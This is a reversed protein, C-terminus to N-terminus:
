YPPTWHARCHPILTVIGTERAGPFNIENFATDPYVKHLKNDNAVYKWYKGFSYEDWGSPEIPDVVPMINIGQQALTEGELVKIEIEEISKEGIKVDGALILACEVDKKRVVSTLDFKVTYIRKYQAVARGSSAWQWVTQSTLNVNDYRWGIFEFGEKQAAPLTGITVGYTIVKPNSVGNPIIEGGDADFMIDYLVPAWTATLTVDTLEGNVKFEDVSISGGSIKKASDGNVIWGTFEHGIRVPNNISIFTDNMYYPNNSTDVGGDLDYSIVYKDDDVFVAKATVDKDKLWGMNKDIPNGNEDEWRAFKYGTKTPIAAFDAIAEGYTVTMNDYGLSAGTDDVFSLTYNKATWIANATCSKTVTAFDIDWSLTYGTKVFAPPKINIGSDFVKTVTGNGEGDFGGNGEFTITIDYQAWNAKVTTDEDIETIAKSWSTFNYGPRVFIPEVLESADSVTQVADGHYLVADDANGVFTVTFDSNRVCGSFAVTGTLCIIAVLLTALFKKFM